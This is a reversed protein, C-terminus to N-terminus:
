NRRSLETAYEEAEGTVAAIKLGLKKNHKQRKWRRLLGRRDDWLHLLHKDVDPTNTTLAVERTPRQRDAKM